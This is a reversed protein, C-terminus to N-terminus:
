ENKYFIEPYVVNRTYVKTPDLVGTEILHAFERQDACIFVNNPDGCRSFGIYLLGHTFVSQPLFMGVRQLSQGQARNFTLYYAGLGPFQVRKFTAPFDTGSCFIPIKPIFIDEGTELHKAHIIHPKIDVVMCRTGNCIKRRLNLNRIIILCAGKKLALRHPPIGSANIKNLVDSDYRKKDDDEVCEDISCSITM